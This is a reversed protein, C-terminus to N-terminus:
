KRIQRPMNVTQEKKAASRGAQRLEDDEPEHLSEETTAQLRSLLGDDEISKRGFLTGRCETDGRDGRNDCRYKASM